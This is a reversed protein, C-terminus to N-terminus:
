DGAFTHEVVDEVSLTSTGIFIKHGEHLKLDERYLTVRCDKCWYFEVDVFTREKFNKCPTDDQFVAKGFNVSELNRCEGLIPLVDLPLWYNCDKCKCYIDM